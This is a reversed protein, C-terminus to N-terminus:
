YTRFLGRKVYAKIVSQALIRSSDYFNLSSNEECFFLDTCACIVDTVGEKKLEKEIQKWKYITDNCLGKEKVSLILDDVNNQLEESLFVEIGTERLKNQYLNSEITSRTALISTKIASRNVNSVTEEIINIIPIDTMKIMESYYKHVVNCPVVIKTCQANTLTDIGVRLANIMRNDDIEKKPHFPTPLSYIIIHPYDEDYRAGYQRECEDLVSELFPSTSRPGMGALIGIPKSINM